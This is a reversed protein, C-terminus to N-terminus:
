VRGQDALFAATYEFCMSAQAFSFSENPSHIRDEELGFGVLVPEAGATAALAGIVPISAGEYCVASGRPHIAALVARAKVVAPSDVPVRLARAGAECFLVELRMGPKVRREFHHRVSELVGEPTQGAVIRM